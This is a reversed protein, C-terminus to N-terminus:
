GCFLYLSANKMSGCYYDHVVEVSMIELGGVGDDVKGDLPHEM